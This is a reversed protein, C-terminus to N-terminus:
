RSAPYTEYIVKDYEAMSDFLERFAADWRKKKASKRADGYMAKAVHYAERGELTLKYNTIQNDIAAVRPKVADMYAKLADVLEKSPKGSYAHRFANRILHRGRRATKYAPGYQEALAEERIKNWLDRGKEWDQM